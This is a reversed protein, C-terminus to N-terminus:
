RKQGLLAVLFRWMQATSTISLREKTTHIDFIDPGFSVSDLGKLKDALIGCELGAHVSLVVPPEHFMETYLKQMQVVLESNKNMEWAPYDGGLSVDAGAEKLKECLEERLKDKANKRSSRISFTMRLEEKTQAIVGLNLSTEVLGPLETSM